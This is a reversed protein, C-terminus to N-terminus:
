QDTLFSERLTPARGSRNALRPWPSSGINNAINVGTSADAFVFCCNPASLRCSQFTSPRLGSGLVLFIELQRPPSHPTITQTKTAQQLQWASEISLRSAFRHVCSGRM